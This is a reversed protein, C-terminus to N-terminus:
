NNSFAIRQIIDAINTIHFIDHFIALYVFACPKPLCAIKSLLSKDLRLISINKFRLVSLFYLNTMSQLKMYLAEKSIFDTLKVRKMFM